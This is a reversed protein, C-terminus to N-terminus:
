GRRMRLLMWVQLVYVFAQSTLLLAIGAWFVGPQRERIPADASASAAGRRMAGRMLLAWVAFLVAAQVIFTRAEAPSILGFPQADGDGAFYGGATLMANYALHFAIAPGVSGTGYALLSLSLGSILHAPLALLSGHTLAFLAGTLAVAAAGGLPEFATLLFGRFMLEECVAPAIAMVLMATFLSDLQYEGIMGGVAPMVSFLWSSWLAGVYSALLATVVGAFIADIYLRPSGVRNLRLAKAPDGCERTILMVPMGFLAILRILQWLWIYHEPITVLSLVVNAIYVLTATLLALTPTPTRDPKATL